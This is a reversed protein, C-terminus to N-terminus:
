LTTRICMSQHLAWDRSRASTGDQVLLDYSMRVAQDPDLSQPTQERNETHEGEGRSAVRGRSAARLGGVRGHLVQHCLFLCWWFRGQEALSPDLLAKLCPFINDNTVTQAIRVSAM